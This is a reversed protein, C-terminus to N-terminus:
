SRRSASFVSSVVFTTSGAPSVTTSSASLFYSPSCHGVERHSVDLLEPLGGAGPHHVDLLGKFLCVAVVVGRELRQADLAGLVDALAGLAGGGLPEDGLGAVRQQFQEALGVEDGLAAGEDLEGLGQDLVGVLDAGRVALGEGLGLQVALGDSLDYIPLACTQVGTVHFDRIGDEA